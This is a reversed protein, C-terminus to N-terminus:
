YYIKMWKIIQWKVKINMFIILISKKIDNFGEYIRNFVM